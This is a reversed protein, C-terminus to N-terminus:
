INMIKNSGKVGFLLSLFTENRHFYYTKRENHGYGIAIDELQEDQFEQTTCTIVEYLKDIQNANLKSNNEKKLYDSLIQDIGGLIQVLEITNDDHSVNRNQQENHTAKLQQLKGNQYPQEM